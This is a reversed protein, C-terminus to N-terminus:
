QTDTPYNSKFYGELQWQDILDQKKKLEQILEAMRKHLEEVKEEAMAARGIATELESVVASMKIASEDIIM